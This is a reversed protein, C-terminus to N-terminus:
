LSESLFASLASNFQSPDQLMAFHSVNRQIVLRAGPITAAIQRTHEPKIIEDHEGDSVVVRCRIQALQKKSFNPETRWM